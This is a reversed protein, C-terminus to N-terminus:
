RWNTSWAPSAGALRGAVALQRPSSGARLLSPAARILRCRRQSPARPWCCQRPRRVAASPRTAGRRATSATSKVASAASGWPRAASHRLGLNERAGTRKIPCVRNGNADYAWTTTTGGETAQTLQGLNNYGYQRTPATFGELVEDIRKIQGGADRTYTRKLATGWNLTRDNLSLVIDDYLAQAAPTLYSQTFSAPHPKAVYPTIKPFGSPGQTYPWVAVDLLFMVSQLDAGNAIAQTVNDFRWLEGSCFDQPEWLPPEKPGAPLPPCSDYPSDKAHQPKAATKTGSGSNHGNHGKAAQSASASKGFQSLAQKLPTREPIQCEYGQPVMVTCDGRRYMDQMVHSKLTRVMAILAAERESGPFHTGKYVTTKQELEGPDNFNMSTLAKGQMLSAVAGTSGDRGISLPGTSTTEGENNFKFDVTASDSGSRLKLENVQDTAWSDFGYSLSATIGNLAFGNAILKAGDYSASLAQGDSTAVSKLLGNADYSFTQHAGGTAQIGSVRGSPARSVTVLQGGPRTISQLQRDKNYRWQTGVADGPATYLSPRDKPTHDFSHIVGAPTTLKVLNGNHDYDYCLTRGDPQTQQTLRGAANYDFRVSRGLADTASALQGAGPTGAPHYTYTSARNGTSSQWAETALQGRGNYGFALRAGSPSTVAEPQMHSNARVLTTRKSPSEISFENNGVWRTVWSLKRNVSTTESWEHLNADTYTALLSNWGNISAYTMRHVLGGPQTVTQLNGAGDYSMSTRLGFPSVVATLRGAADREFTTVNGHSDKVTAIRGQADHGYMALAQGGFGNRLQTPLGNKDFEEAAQGDSTGVLYVPDGVPSMGSDLKGFQIESQWRVPRKTVIFRGDPAVGNVIASADAGWGYASGFLESSGSSIRSIAGSSSIRDIAGNTGSVFADSQNGPYIQNVVQPFVQNLAGNAELRSLGESTSVWVDGQQSQKTESVVGPVPVQYIRGAPSISVLRAKPTVAVIHGDDLAVMSQIEIPTSAALAGDTVSGMPLGNGAITSLTGDPKLQKLVFNAEDMFLLSGDKGAAVVGVQGIPTEKLAGSKARTTKSGRGVLIAVKGKDPGYLQISKIQNLNRDSYVVAGRGDVFSSHIAYIGDVGTATQDKVDAVFTAPLQTHRIVSGDGNYVMANSADFFRLGEIGWSGANVQALAPNKRPAPVFQDVTVTLRIEDPVGGAM